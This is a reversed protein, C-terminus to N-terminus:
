YLLVGLAAAGLIILIPNIKKWYSAVFAAGMLLWSKWDIINERV